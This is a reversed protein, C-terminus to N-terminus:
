AAMRFAAGIPDPQSQWQPSAFSTRSSPPATYVKRIGDRPYDTRDNRRGGRRPGRSDKNHRESVIDDLSRDM